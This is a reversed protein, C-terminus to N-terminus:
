SVHTELADVLAFVFQPLRNPDEQHMKRKLRNVKKQVAASLAQPDTQSFTVVVETIAEKRLDELEPHDLRLKEITQEAAPNGGAAHISGDTGYQFCQECREELPTVFDDWESPSPWDGKYTAGFAGGEETHCAVMNEYSVDTNGDWSHARPKLHEIHADSDGIRIGTYACIEGQEDLLAELIEAKLDPDADIEGWGFPVDDDLKRETLANPENGQKYITRM